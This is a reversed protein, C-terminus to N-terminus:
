LIPPDLIPTQPDSISSRLDLIPFRPDPIPSRPLTPVLRAKDTLPSSTRPFRPFRSFRSFESSNVRLYTRRVIAGDAQISM